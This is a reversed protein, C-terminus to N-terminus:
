MIVVRSKHIYGILKGGKSYYVKYWSGTTKTTYFIEGDYIRSVIASSSSAAKRVNTYGDPDNITARYYVTSSAGNNAKESNSVVRILNLKSTHIYGIRSGSISYYVPWWSGSNSRAYFREGRNFRGVIASSTTQGKRVNTYGDPDNISCEWLTQASMAITAMLFTFFLFFKKM